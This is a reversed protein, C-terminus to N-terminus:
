ICHTHDTSVPAFPRNEPVLWLISEIEGIPHKTLNKSIEAIVCAKVDSRIANRFEALTRPPAVVIPATGKSARVM